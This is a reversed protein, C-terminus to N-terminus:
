PRGFPNRVGFKNNFIQACKDLRSLLTPNILGYFIQENKLFILQLDKLPLHLFQGLKGPVWNKLIKPISLFAWDIAISDM